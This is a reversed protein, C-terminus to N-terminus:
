GDLYEPDAFTVEVVAQVQLLAHCAGCYAEVDGEFYKEQERVRVCEEGCKPCAVDEIENAAFPPVWEDPADGM